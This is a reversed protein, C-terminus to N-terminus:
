GADNQFAGDASVRARGRGCVGAPYVGCWRPTEIHVINTHGGVITVCAWKEGNWVKARSFLIEDCPEQIKVSVKGAALLAKADAIAQATADKLVELGANANGGLAGLAAAIPLGVM